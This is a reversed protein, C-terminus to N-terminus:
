TGSDPSGADLTGADAGADSGADQTAMCSGTPVCRLNCCEENLPCDSHTACDYGIPDYLRCSLVVALAVVAFLLLVSHRIRSM